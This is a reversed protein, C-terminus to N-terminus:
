RLPELHRLAKMVATIVGTWDDTREQRFLRASPYWSTSCGELGWRWEPIAKLLIWVPLGLGGCLHALATDNTLVVDCCAAIAATEAFDWAQDVKHQAPNFHERFSCQALQECGPGKQLSVLELGEIEALPRLLELPLSRGRSVGEEHAPNGQWHVGLRLGQGSKAPLTQRWASYRRHDLPLYPVVWQPSARSVGLWAALSLLPMWSCEPPVQDEALPFPLVADALNAQSLLSVLKPEVALILQSCLPKALAAYRVFQFVDGLGQEQVLLLPKSADGGASCPPLSISPLLNPIAQFRYAYGLWGQDFDGHLMQLMGRNYLAKPYNPRLHIAQDLAQRAAQLRGTLWHLNSLNLWAQPLHPNLEIAKGLDALAEPWRQLEVWAAARNVLLEPWDPRHQLAYSYAETTAQFQGLGQLSSGRVFALAAQDHQGAPIADILRIAEQHKGQAQLAMLRQWLPDHLM